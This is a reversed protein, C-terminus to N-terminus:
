AVKRRMKVKGVGDKEKQDIMLTWRPHRRKGMSYMHRQQEEGGNNMIRYFNYKTGSVYIANILIAVHKGARPGIYTVTVPIPAGQGKDGLQPNGRSATAPAPGVTTIKAM